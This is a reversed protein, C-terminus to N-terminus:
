CSCAPWPLPEWWRPSQCDQLTTQAAAFRTSLKVERKGRLWCATESIAGASLDLCGRRRDSRVGQNTHNTMVGSDPSWVSELFGHFVVCTSLIFCFHGRGPIKYVGPNKIFAWRRNDMDRWVQCERGNMRSELPQMKNLGTKGCLM